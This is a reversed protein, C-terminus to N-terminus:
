FGTAARKQFLGGDSKLEKREKRKKRVRAERDEVMGVVDDRSWLRDSPGATMAPTVRLIQRIRVFNYYM